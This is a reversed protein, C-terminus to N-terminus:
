TRLVHYYEIIQAITRFLVIGLGTLLFYFIKKQQLMARVGDFECPYM